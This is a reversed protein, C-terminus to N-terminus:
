EDEEWPEATFTGQDDNVWWIGLDTHVFYHDIGVGSEPGDIEEWEAPKTDTEASLFEIPTAPDNDMQQLLIAASHSEIVPM